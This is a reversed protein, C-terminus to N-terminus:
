ASTLAPAAFFGTFIGNDKPTTTDVSADTGFVLKQIGRIEQVAVGQKDGYDTDDTVTKTRQAIAFGLAQAGCLFVPSVDASTGGTIACDGIEPIERIIMGNYMLSDGTFIPNDTGRVRADRNATAITTDEQLRKFNKTGCFVVYWEEDGNVMIPRIAPSAVKALAKMLNLRAATILDGSDDVNGLATAFTTSYNATSAGFLVRDSNATVWADQAATTATAAADFITYLGTQYNGGVMGLANIIDTRTQELIWNKLVVRGADRLSIASYQEDIEPVVVANRIKDVMVTCSRSNMKEEAGVLTASGKKGAGTLANVLAFTVTKGKKATLDEKLQIMANEDKGMYKKFRNARIYETFFKDDWQQVTLGAAVATNAM